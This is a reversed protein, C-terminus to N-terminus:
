KRTYGVCERSILSLIYIILIASDVPNYNYLDNIKFLYYDVTIQTVTSILSRPRKTLCLVRIEAVAQWKLFFPLISILEWKM